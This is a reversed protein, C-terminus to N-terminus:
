NAKLSPYSIPVLLTFPIHLAMDRKVIVVVIFGVNYIIAQNKFM